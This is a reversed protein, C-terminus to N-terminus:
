CYRYIYHSFVWGDRAGWMEEWWNYDAYKLAASPYPMCNWVYKWATYTVAEAQSTNHATAVDAVAGGGVIAAALAFGAVAKKFKNINGGLNFHCRLM